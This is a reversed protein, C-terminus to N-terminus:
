PATASTFSAETTRCSKGRQAASCSFTELCLGLSRDGKVSRLSSNSSLVPLADRDM